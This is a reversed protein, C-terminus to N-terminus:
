AAGAGVLDLLDLQVTVGPRCRAWVLEALAQSEDMLVGWPRRQSFLLDLQAQQEALSDLIRRHLLVGIRDLTALEAIEVWRVVPIVDTRSSVSGWVHVGTRDCNFMRGDRGPWGWGPLRGSLIPFSAFYFAQDCVVAGAAWVLHDRPTDPGCHDLIAQAEVRLRVAVVALHHRRALM